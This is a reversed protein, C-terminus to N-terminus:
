QGLAKNISFPMAQYGGAGTFQIEVSPEKAGWKFENIIPTEKGPKMVGITASYVMVSNKDDQYQTLSTIPSFWSNGREKGYEWVQQVTKKKQDIKYVVARSYKMSPMAPQEMNRSDGNDFATLYLTDGKSKSDIKFASHQVWSWDFDGECKSNECKIKNGQADIPTLVKDKFKGNWGEPSSLIWKVEKDKGIKVISSQNRVSLIISNDETDHDISNVHAWNRGPGTGTIDGFENSQDMKELDEKSMTHGSKTADLNLCVAGQDMAKINVDRYSDLIDFLLWEDQVEGQENVEVIVDRVTRVNKGDARKYNSLGVRLYYNGNSADLAHSFDNYRLPLARNFIERGLIDYKVYRQGFGWTLSGDLNQEFGTMPGITEFKKFDQLLTTNLYWRVEGKTDLIFIQAPYTWQLAGGTPNNWVVRRGKASESLNNVFYLRDSFEKDVKKVEVKNFFVGQQTKSGSLETHVPGTYIKYNEKIREQKNNFVKTYEVEVTNQYDPYLGFVPIGGHTLIEKDSIDYSILQGDQKPVITVKANKINFGGNNIIATLPAFEYPNVIVEGIQGQARFEVKPGSAAGDAFILTPAVSLILGAVLASSLMKRMRM